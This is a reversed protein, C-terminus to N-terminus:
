DNGGSYLDERDFVGHNKHTAREIHFSLAIKVTNVFGLILELFEIYIYIYILMVM